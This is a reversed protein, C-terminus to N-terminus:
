CGGGHKMLSSLCTLQKMLCNTLHLTLSSLLVDDGSGCMLLSCGGCADGSLLSSLLLKM